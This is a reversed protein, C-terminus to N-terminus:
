DENWPGERVRKKIQSKGAYASFNEYVIRLLGASGLEDWARRRQRMKTWVSDPLLAKREEAMKRGLDTLLYADGERGPLPHREVIGKRRLNRIVQKLRKSHPGMHLPVFGMPEFNLGHEPGFSKELLFMEKQVVLRGSLEAHPHTGALLLFADEVSIPKSDTLRERLEKELPVLDKLLFFREGCVTCIKGAVRHGEIEFEKNELEHEHDLEEISHKKANKLLEEYTIM